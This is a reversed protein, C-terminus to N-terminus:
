NKLAWVKGTWGKPVVSNNLLKIKNCKIRTIKGVTDDTSDDNVVTIDLPGPYKQALLSQLVIDISGEENRAPVIIAVSPWTDLVRPNCSLMQDALWFKGRFLLLGIWLLLSIVAVFQLYFIYMQSDM